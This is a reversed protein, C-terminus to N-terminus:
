DLDKKTEVSLEITPFQEMSAIEVDPCSEFFEELFTSILKRVRVRPKNPVKFAIWKKDLRLLECRIKLRDMADKVRAWVMLIRAKREALVKPSNGYKM